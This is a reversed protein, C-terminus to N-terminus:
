DFLQNWLRHIDAAAGNETHEVISKGLVM